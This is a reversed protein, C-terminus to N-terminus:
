RMVRESLSLLGGTWLDRGGAGEKLSKLLSPQGSRTFSKGLSEDKTKPYGIEACKVLYTM